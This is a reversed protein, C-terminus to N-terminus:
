DQNHEEYEEAHLLEDNDMEERAVFPSQGTVLQIHTGGSVLTDTKHILGARRLATTLGWLEIYCTENKVKSVVPIVTGDAFLLEITRVAYQSPLIRVECELNVVKPNGQISSITGITTKM